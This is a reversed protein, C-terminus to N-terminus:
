RPLGYSDHIMEEVVVEPALGDGPVAAVVLDANPQADVQRELENRLAELMLERVTTGRMRALERVRRMVDDPIDIVTKM